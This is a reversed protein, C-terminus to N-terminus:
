LLFVVQIELQDVKSRRIILPWEKARQQGRTPCLEWVYRVLYTNSRM